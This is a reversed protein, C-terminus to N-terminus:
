SPARTVSISSSPSLKAVVIALAAGRRAVRHALHQM